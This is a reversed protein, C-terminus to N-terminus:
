AKNSTNRIIFLADNKYLGDGLEPFEKNINDLLYIGVLDTVEKFDPFRTTIDFFNPIDKRAWLKDFEILSKYVM